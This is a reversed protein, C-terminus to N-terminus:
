IEIARNLTIFIHIIIKIINVCCISDYKITYTFLVNYICKGISCLSQEDSYKENQAKEHGPPHHNTNESAIENEADMNESRRDNHKHELTLSSISDMSELDLGSAASHASSDERNEHNANDVDKSVLKSSSVSINVYLSSQNSPDEMQITKEDDLVNKADM